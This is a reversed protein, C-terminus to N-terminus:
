EKIPREKLPKFTYGSDASPLSAVPESLLFEGKKIWDRLTKAIEVAKPYSSLPATPVDKGKVKIRGSKLEEYNTEGLSGPKGQPYAESYDVIQTWIDRDSVATYRCIDENLIPIPIGVGVTLTVGYGQFSTGVLWKPSMGKLDGILALTGAPAQPVGNDKRGVSPNHQTGHWAVYGIGGGLFIRTGIGITKYYPDNLLPLAPRGLM